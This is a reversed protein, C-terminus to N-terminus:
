AGARVQLLTAHLLAPDDAAVDAAGLHRLELEELGECAAVAHLWAPGVPAAGGGGGGGGAGLALRRLGPPLWGASADDVPGALELSSLASLGGLADARLPAPWGGPPAALSLRTLRALRGAASSAAAADLLAAATPAPLCAQLSALAPWHRRGPHAALRSRRPQNATLRVCDPAPRPAV